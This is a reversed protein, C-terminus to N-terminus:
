FDYVAFSILSDSGAKIGQRLFYQGSPTADAELCVALAHMRKNAITIDNKDLGLSCGLEINTIDDEVSTRPSVIDNV